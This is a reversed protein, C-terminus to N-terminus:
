TAGASRILRAERSGGNADFHFSYSRDVSYCRRWAASRTRGEVRRPLHITGRGITLFTLAIVEPIVRKSTRQRKPPPIRTRHDKRVIASATASTGRGDARASM